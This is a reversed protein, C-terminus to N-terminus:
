VNRYSIILCRTNDINFVLSPGLDFSTKNVKLNTKGKLLNENNLRYQRINNQTIEVIIGQESYKKLRYTILSTRKILEARDKIIFVRKAIETTTFFDQPANVFVEIIRNELNEFKLTGKGERIGKERVRRNAQKSMEQLVGRKRM